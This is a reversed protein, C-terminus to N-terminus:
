GIHAPDDKGQKKTIVEVFKFSDTWHFIAPLQQSQRFVRFRPNQRKYAISKIEHSITLIEM